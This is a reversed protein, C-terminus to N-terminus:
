IPRAVCSTAAPSSAFDPLESSSASFVRPVSASPVSVTSSTSVTFAFLLKVRGASLKVAKPRLHTFLYEEDVHLCHYWCMAVEGQFLLFTSQASPLSPNAPSHGAPVTATHHHRLDVFFFHQAGQQIIPSLSSVHGRLHYTTRSRVSTSSSTSASSSLSPASSSISSLYTTNASSSSATKFLQHIQAQDMMHLPLPRLVSWDVVEAGDLVVAERGDVELVACGGGSNAALPFVLNFRLFLVVRQLLAADAHVIHCTISATHDVLLLRTPDSPHNTPRGVLVFPRPQLLAPLPHHPSSAATAFQHAHTERQKHFPLPNCHQEIDGYIPQKESAFAALPPIDLLPLLQNPPQKIRSRHYFGIITREITTLATQSASTSAHLQNHLKRDLQYLMRARWKTLLVDELATSEANNTCAMSLSFCFRSCFCVSWVLWSLAVDRQHQISSNVLM